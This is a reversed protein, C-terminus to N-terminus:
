QDRKWVTYHLEDAVVRGPRPREFALTTGRDVCRFDPGLLHGLTAEDGDFWLERPTVADDWAFEDAVVLLGGPRVLGRAGGLRGFLGRPSPLRSLLRSVLVLDFATWDPPLSAADTQRYNVRAALSPTLGSAGGALVRRAEEVVGLRVDAGTVEGYLPALACTLGGPGCGIDLARADGTRHRRIQALLTERHTAEAALGAPLLEALPAYAAFSRAAVNQAREVPSTRAAGLKVVAGDNGERRPDVVRFGAHQFFHPRFHFRAHATAEDGCSLFSGGLIMTHEGDFCPTSFDDYYPHIHFGALPHFDDECWQWVNGFVDTFAREGSTVPSESGHRLSLNLEPLDFLRWAAAPDALRAAPLLGSAARLRHHEAETTLRLPIARHESETRWACYARAEHANVDAPWDWPMVVTEFVTRLLYQHSGQPGCPVWFTPWKANRFSRWRWGEDTWYRQERYGGAAVFAHFEGNTILHRSAAFAEVRAERAGYENDWGFTPFAEDKGIWATGAPVDQLPNVPYDRGVVPERWAAAADPAVVQASPHLRPFEAPRGVLALPLERMLVSSTEIHIREHEFGLFLAWLPSSPGIPAHGDALGPHQDIIGRVLAYVERRYARCDSVSPWAMANKSLDDWSMEDVGTEFLQEYFPELPAGVLGAVRLKNVYLAAPHVHYFIMPHRLDHYPPRYFAEESTLGALLLESLVWGNDFYARVEDRTCTALNPPPLATITGDARRGPCDSAGPLPGTWWSDDRPFPVVDRGLNARWAEFSAASQGATAVSPSHRDLNPNRSTHTSL